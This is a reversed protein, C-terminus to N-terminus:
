APVPIGSGGTCDVESSPIARWREAGKRRLGRHHVDGARPSCDSPRWSGRYPQTVSGVVDRGDGGLGLLCLGASGFRCPVFGVNGRSRVRHGDDQLAAMGLVGWCVTSRPYRDADRTPQAADVRRHGRVPFSRPLGSSSKRRTVPLSPSPSKRRPTCPSPQSTKGRLPAPSPSPPLTTSTVACHMEKALSKTM